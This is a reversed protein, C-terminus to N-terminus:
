SKYSMSVIMPDPEDATTIPAYTTQNPSTSILPAAVSITKEKEVNNKPSMDYPLKKYSHGVEIEKKPSATLTPQSMKQPKFCGGIWSAVGACLASFASVVGIGCFVISAVPSAAVAVAVMGCTFAPALAATWLGTAALTHGRKECQFGAFLLAGATAATMLGGVAAGIMTTIGLLAAPAWLVAGCTFVSAAVTLALLAICLIPRKKFFNIVSHFGNKIRQFITM